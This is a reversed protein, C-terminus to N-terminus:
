RDKRIPIRFGLKKKVVKVTLDINQYKLNRYKTRGNEDKKTERILLWVVKEGYNLDFWDAKIEKTLNPKANHYFILYSGDQSYDHKPILEDITTIM